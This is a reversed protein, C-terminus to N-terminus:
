IEMGLIQCLRYPISDKAFILSSSEINFDKREINKKGGLPRHRLKGGLASRASKTTCGVRKEGLDGKLELGTLTTHVSRDPRDGSKPLDASALLSEIYEAFFVPRAEGGGVFGLIDISKFLLGNEM